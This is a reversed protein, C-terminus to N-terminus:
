PRLTAFGEIGKAKLGARATEAEEKSGFMGYRLKNVGGDPFIDVTGSGLVKELRKKEANAADPSTLAGLQLQWSGATAVERAPPTPTQASAAQATAQTGARTSEAAVPAAPAPRWPHADLDNMVEGPAIAGSLSFLFLISLTSM